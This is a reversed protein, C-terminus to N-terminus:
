EKRAERQGRTPSSCAAPWRTRFPAAVVTLGFGRSFEIVFAVPRRRSFAVETTRVNALVHACTGLRRAW